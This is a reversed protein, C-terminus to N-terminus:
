SLGRCKPGINRCVENDTFGGTLMLAVSYGSTSSGLATHLFDELREEHQAIQLGVASSEETTEPLTASTSTLSTSGQQYLVFVPLISIPIRNYMYSASRVYIDGAPGEIANATSLEGIWNAHLSLVHYSEMTSKNTLKLALDITPSWHFSLDYILSELRYRLPHMEATKRRSYDEIDLKHVRLHERSLSAVRIDWALQQPNILHQLDGFYKGVHYVLYWQSGLSQYQLIPNQIGRTKYYENFDERLTTCQELTPYLDVKGTPNDQVAAKLKSTLFEARLKLRSFTDMDPDKQHQHGYEM